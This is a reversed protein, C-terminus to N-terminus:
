GSKRPLTAHMFVVLFFLLALQPDDIQSDFAAVGLFGVLGAAAAGHVPALRGARWAKALALLLALSCVAVGVLGQEVLLHLGINKAHYALHYRDSTFFWREMGRSFDGNVLLDRGAEDLLEAKRVELLVGQSETGFIFFHPRPLWGEGKLAEAGDLPVDIESWDNGAPVTAQRFACPGNYILHKACLMLHVAPGRGDAAPPTLSRLTLRARYRQREPRVFQEIQLTDGYGIRYRPGSLRLPGENAGGLAHAGPFEGAANRWFSHYPFSGTGMGMLWAAPTPEMLGVVSKWHAIRGELDQGVTSLRSGMYYSMLLPVALAVGVGLLIAVPLQRAESRWLVQRLKLNAAAALAVVGVIAAQVLGGEPGSWNAAVVVAQMGVWLAGAFLLASPAGPRRARWLGAAVLALAAIFLAYTGAGIVLSAASALALPLVMLALRSLGPAPRPTGCSLYAAAMAGLASGLGRYGAHRFAAVSLLVAFVLMLLPALRRSLSPAEAIAAAPQRLHLLLVVLMAAATGVYTSRTFTVLVAYGAAALLATAAAAALPRPRDLLWVAAFPLTLVLFGDLSAGGVHTASFWGTVRYDSSFDTLSAFAQREWLVTLTALALGALMGRWFLRRAGEADRALAALWLPVLFVAEVPAKAVRLANEASHYAAFRATAGADHAGIAAAALVSLLVLLMAILGPLAISSLVAQKRALTLRVYGAVLTALVFVDLESAVGWGLFPHLDLVPVLAPLAVLWLDARWALLAGYALAAGLVPVPGLAHRTALWALLLAACLAILAALLRRAM